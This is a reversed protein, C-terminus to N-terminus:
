ESTKRFKVIKESLSISEVVKSKRKFFAIKKKKIPEKHEDEKNSISTDQDIFQVYYFSAIRFALFSFLAPVFLGYLVIYWTVLLLVFSNVPNKWNIIDIVFDFLTMFPDILERVKDINTKILQLNKYFGIDLDPSEKDFKENRDIKNEKEAKENKDQTPPSKDSANNIFISPLAETIIPPPPRSSSRARGPIFHQLKQKLSEQEKAVGNNSNGDTVTSAIVAQSPTLQDYEKVSSVSDKEEESNDSHELKKLVQNLILCNM